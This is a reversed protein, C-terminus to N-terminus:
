GALPLPVVGFALVIGPSQNRLASGSNIFRSGSDIWFTQCVVVDV